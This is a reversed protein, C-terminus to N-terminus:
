RIHRDAGFAHWPGYTGNTRKLQLLFVLDEPHQQCDETLALVGRYSVDGDAFVFEDTPIVTPTGYRESANCVFLGRASGTIGSGLVHDLGPIHYADSFGDIKISVFGTELNLMVRGGSVVFWRPSALIGAVILNPSDDESGINGVVQDWSVIPGGAWASGTFTLLGVALGILM